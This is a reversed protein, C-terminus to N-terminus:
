NEMCLRVPPGHEVLHTCDAPPLLEVQATGTRLRAASDPWRALASSRHMHPESRLECLALPIRYLASVPLSHIILVTVFIILVAGLRPLIAKVDRFM